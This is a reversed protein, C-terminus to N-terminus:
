IKHKRRKQGDIANKKNESERGGSWGEGNEVREIKTSKRDHLMNNCQQVSLNHEFVAVM